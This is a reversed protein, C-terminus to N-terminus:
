RNLVSQIRQPPIKPVFLATLVKYCWIFYISFVRFVVWGWFLARSVFDVLLIECYTLTLCFETEVSLKTRNRQISKWNCICLTVLWRASSRTDECHKLQSSNQEWAWIRKIAHRYSISAYASTIKYTIRFVNQTSPKM